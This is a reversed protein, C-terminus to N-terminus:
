WYCEHTSSVRFKCRPVERFERIGDSVPQNQWIASVFELARGFDLFDVQSLFLTRAVKNPPCETESSEMRTARVREPLANLKSDPVELNEHITGIEFFKVTMTKVSNATAHARKEGLSTVSLTLPSLFDFSQEFM